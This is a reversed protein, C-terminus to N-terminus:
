LNKLEDLASEVKPVLSTLEETSTQPAYRAQNSTQFLERLRDLTAEPVRLPRLREDLVAETIASAPLDLKEGLREQLLHFLTAFFDTSQNAAAQQRLDR